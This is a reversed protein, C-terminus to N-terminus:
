ESAAESQAILFRLNNQALQYEPYVQLAQQYANAAEQYLGKQMNVFGRMNLAVAKFPVEQKGQNVFETMTTTASRDHAIVLDIYRMAQDYQELNIYAFAVEYPVVLDGPKLEMLRLFGQLSGAVDGINKRASASIEVLSTTEEIELGQDATIAASKDMGAVYYLTALSDYAFGQSEDALLIRNVAFAATSFDNRAKAEKYLQWEQEM